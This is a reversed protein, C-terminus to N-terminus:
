IQGNWCSTYACGLLQGLFHCVYVGIPSQCVSWRIEALLGSRIIIFLFFFFFLSNEFNDVKSNRSVMSYFQFFIFLPIFVEVKSSFRCFCHFMCPVIIGTTIPAKPITVLPNSFSSSSKSTPPRTSVTWVVVNNLVALISLLTRSVQPFKSDSLSWHFDILQYRHVGQDSDEQSHEEAGGGGFPTGIRQATGELTSGDSNANQPHQCHNQQWLKSRYLAHTTCRRM